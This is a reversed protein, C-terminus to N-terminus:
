RSNTEGIEVHLVEAYSWSESERSAALADVYSQRLTPPGSSPLLLVGAILLWIAAAGSLFVRSLHLLRFRSRRRAEIKEWLGPMFGPGPSPDPCAERYRAFLEDLARDLRNM